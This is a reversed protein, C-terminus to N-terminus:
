QPIQMFHDLTQYGWLGPLLPIIDGPILRSEALPHQTLMERLFMIGGAPTELDDVPLHGPDVLLNQGAIWGSDEVQAAPRSQVGAAQRLESMGTEADIIGWGRDLICFIKSFL